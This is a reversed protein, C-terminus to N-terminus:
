SSSFVLQRVDAARMADLLSRTGEVNIRYYISPDRMSEPVSAFAAYHAVIQPKAAALAGALAKSDNLDGEILEGWNVLDRFGRSLNDYVVVRWGAAAFAKCSHSGVYGAGGTVFVTRM